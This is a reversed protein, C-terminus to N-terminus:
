HSESVMVQAESVNELIKLVRRLRDPSIERLCNRCFFNRSYSNM